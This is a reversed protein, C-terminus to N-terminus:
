RNTRNGPLTDKGFMRRFREILATEYGRASAKDLFKKRIQTTYADGTERTLRRAQQEARISAGDNARVGRASEGIKFTSGNPGKIGYVHTNGVYALSNKHIGNRPSLPASMLAIGFQGVREFGSFENGRFDYGTLVANLQSAGIFEGFRIFSESSVLNQGITGVSSSGGHPHSLGGITYNSGHSNGSGWSGSFNSSGWSISSGWSNGPGWSNGSYLFISASSGGGGSFGNDFDFDWNGSPDVRNIPNNQVYAYRNFSQPNEPDPVYSDPTMFRGLDPSYIRADYNYLETERDQEQGTYLYNLYVSSVDSRTEGFPYYAVSEKSYGDKDTVLVTSGQHDGHLYYTQTATKIAIRTEGAYIHKDCFGNTCEYLKDVYHTAAGPTSKQVRTGTGDYIFNIDGILTPMNDHDYVINRLGDNDMNGNDDYHFIRGSGTSGVAHARVPTYTESSINTPLLKNLKDTITTINGKNDYEYENDVLLGGQVPSFVSIGTLRKNVPDYSFHSSAAASGYATDWPRGLADYNSFSAYGVVKNLIGADYLYSVKENDPYTISDLRGNLYGFKLAYSTDTITKTSDSIRGAIDYNFVAQGSLDVMKTLYGNNFYGAVAQDYYNTLVLTTGFYKSTLRNLTDYTFTLVQKKADTQKVLNGNGDYQYAWEGLDPDHMYRKRGLSDYRIEILNPTTMTDIVFRLNGLIDYQYTTTSYLRALEEATTCASFTGTYTQVKTLRGFVDRLERRRHNNPDIKVTVDKEYCTLTRIEDAPSELGTQKVRGITDYETTTYNPTETGFFYPFSTRYVDGKSNYITDSAITKSEPGKSKNLYTRGFGDFYNESWLGDSTNTRIHQTGVTGFNNYDWSTWTIDPLTQKKQRGFSDYENSTIAGNPETVSQTQGYLGYGGAAANVGYYKTTTVLGLPSNTTPPTKVTIPFTKSSDYVISTTNTRADRSCLLNGYSDYAMREEVTSDPEPSITVPDGDYHLWREIRTPLGKVPIQNTSATNCDTASDYYYKTGAIKTQTTIGQNITESAPLGVIWPTTNIAYTRVVTQDDDSNGMDGYQEEKSINGYADYTYVTRTHRSTATGDYEYSDVQHKPNFWPAASDAAYSITTEQFTPGDEESVKTRYPKGKMYGNQVNPDNDDVAIDNGQHFWQEDIRRKGNIDAPAKSMAYAFGRFDREAIHYFGGSFIFDSKAINGHGDDVTISNVTHIPFPLRTNNYISSPSYSINTISGLSSKVYTLLNSGQTDSGNDAFGINIAGTTPNVFLVDTKGDGNFDAFRYRTQEGNGLTAWKFDAKYTIWDQKGTSAVIDYGRSLAVYLNGASDLWLVDTKRDGNFNGIFYSRGDCFYIGNNVALDGIAGWKFLDGTWTRDGNTSEFWSGSSVGVDINCYPPVTSKRIYLADSKGDGNFDAFRYPDVYGDGMSLWKFAAKNTPWDTEGNVAKLTNGNSLAVHLENSHFCDYCQTGIWYATSPWHIADAKGDGNFDTYNYYDHVGSGFAKLWMTYPAFSSTADSTSIAINQDGKFQPRTLNGYRFIYDSKGDGNFDAYNFRMPNVFGTYVPNWSQSPTVFSIGNSLAVYQDGDDRMFVIDTKGDGNVDALRYYEFHGIQVQGYIIPDISGLKNYWQTAAAFTKDKNALSVSVNGATDIFLIDAIADGNFDGVFYQDPNGNGMTLINSAIDFRTTEPSYDFKTEPLSAGDSIDGNSDVTAVNDFEQVTELLSHQIGTSTKYTFSYAKYPLGNATIQITKLRKATQVKFNSVFSIEKDIRVSDFYFKITNTPLLNGAPNGTYRVTDPYIQNLEKPYYDIVLYNGNLDEVRDLCWRFIKSPDSPDALRSDDTSGYTYKTGKKDTVEWYTRTDPATLKRIRNFKGEVKPSYLNTEAPNPILESSGNESQLIFDTGSYNVGFKTSREIAGLQIEWGIGMWGNGSNSRYNAAVKPEVGNRGPPTSIQVASSYSGTFFDPTQAPLQVADRIHAPLLPTLSTTTSPVVKTTTDTGESSTTLVTANEIGRETEEFAFLPTATVFVLFCVCIMKLVVNTIM